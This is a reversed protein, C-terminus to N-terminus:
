TRLCRLLRRNASQTSQWSWRLHSCSISHLRSAQPSLGSLGPHLLAPFPADEPVLTWTCRIWKPPSRFGLLMGWGSGNVESTFPLKEKGNGSGERTAPSTAKCSGAQEWSSPSPLDVGPPSCGEQRSHTHTWGKNMHVRHDLRQLSGSHPQADWCRRTGRGSRRMCGLDQELFTTINCPNIIRATPM